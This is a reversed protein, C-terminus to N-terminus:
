LKRIVISEWSYLRKIAWPLSNFLSFFLHSFLSNTEPIIESRLFLISQCKGPLYTALRGHLFGRTFSRRGDPFEGWLLAKCHVSMM